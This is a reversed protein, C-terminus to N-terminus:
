PNAEPFEARLKEIEAKLSAVEVQYQQIFSKNVDSQEKLEANETVIEQTANTVTQLEHKLSTNEKTLRDVEARELDLAEKIRTFLSKDVDFAEIPLGVAHRLANRSAKDWQGLMWAGIENAIEGTGQKTQDSM